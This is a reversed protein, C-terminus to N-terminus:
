KIIGEETIIESVKIDLKNTPLYDDKLLTDYFCVGIIYGKYDKLYSDYFGKGFGLRNKHYDFCLGPIIILDINDKYIINNKNSSPELIGFSSKILKDNLTYKYFIIDKNEVKPLCIIKHNNLAYNILEDLNVETLLSKYLAITKSKQYISSSIIQNIILSSKIEKDPINKRILLYKHRLNDKTKIINKM